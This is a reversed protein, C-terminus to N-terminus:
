TEKGGETVAREEYTFGGPAPMKKADIGAQFDDLIYDIMDRTFHCSIKKGGLINEFRKNVLDCAQLRPLLIARQCVLLGSNGAAVESTNLREAKGANASGIGRTRLFEELISQQLARLENGQFPVGLNLVSIAEPDYDNNIRIVEANEDYSGYANEASLQAEKPAKLLVPTKQARANLQIIRDLEALRTAYSLASVSGPTRTVNNYCIVSNTQDLDATFGNKAHVTRTTPIGYLNPMSTGFGSLAVLGEEVAFFIVKGHYYLERELYIPDITDPVDWEISAISVQALHELWRGLTFLNKEQADRESTLPIM